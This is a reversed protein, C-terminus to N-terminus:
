PRWNGLATATAVLGNAALAALMGGRYAMWASRRGQLYGQQRLPSLEEWGLQQDLAALLEGVWANLARDWRSLRQPNRRSWSRGFRAHKAEDRLVRGV